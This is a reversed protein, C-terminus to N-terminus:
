PLARAIRALAEQLVCRPTAFNLRAFGAGQRGFDQGSNLGVKAEQVLFRTLERADPFYARFDLWAMYTGEPKVMKVAPMRTAVFDALAAANGTLYDLLANLWAEGESYAVETALAGFINNRQLHLKALWAAILARKRKDPVVAFSFNLGAINFTKSAAMFTVVPNDAPTGLAALVTHTHGAYVVDSHIEDALVTIRYEQCLAYLRTLEARSWVRGVPNHPSCFLLLKNRPDALKQELDDFDIEYRGQRCILPNEVVKRDNDKIVAFFPPYVPPQIIIGDGPASLALITLAITPVVGPTFLLWDAAIDWDHRRGLWECCAQFLSAEQINYGYVPHHARAIIKGSVAAPSAFDMDAIWLPLVDDRGFIKGCGDWKVSGTRYRSIPTDFDFVTTDTAM